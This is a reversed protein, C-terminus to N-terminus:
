ILLVTARAILNFLVSPPPIPSTALQRNTLVDASDAVLWPSPSVFKPLPLSSDSTGRPLNSQIEIVDLDICCEPEHQSIEQRGDNREHPCSACAGDAGKTDLKLQGDTEMCYVSGVLGLSSVVLLVFSCFLRGFIHLGSPHM